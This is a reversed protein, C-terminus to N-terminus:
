QKLDFTGAQIFNFACKGTGGSVSFNGGSFEIDTATAPNPLFGTPPFKLLTGDSSETNLVVIEGQIYSTSGDSCPSQASCISGSAFCSYGNLTVTGSLPFVDGLHPDSVAPGQTIDATIGYTSQGSALPISGTWDASISPVFIGYVTGNDQNSCLGATSTYTGLFSGNAIQTAEISLASGELNQGNTALAVNGASLAGSFVNPANAYCGLLGTGDVLSMSGSLSNNANALGGRVYASSHVESATGLCQWKETGDNTIQGTITKWNPATAGSVGVQQAQMVYVTQNVTVEVNQDLFYQQSPQWQPYPNATTAIMLYNGSPFSFPGAPAVSHAGSSGCGVM